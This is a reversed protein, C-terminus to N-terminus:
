PRYLPEPQTHSISLVRGDFPHLVIECEIGSRDLARVTPPQRRAVRVNQYGQKTLREFAAHYVELSPPRALMSDDVQALAPPQCVLVSAVVIGSLVFVRM